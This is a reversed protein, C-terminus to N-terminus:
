SVDLRRRLVATAEAPDEAEHIASCVAVRTFGAEIVQRLNDGCIGGIAFSPLTIDEAVERLLEVGPHREFSKTHSAFVPGVGIYNVGALVARRAQDLSHTSLGIIRDPGLIRRADQVNLDDQGLHVGHADALLALDPRDNVILLKGVSETLQRAVRARELLDKEPCNKDRLQIVDAGSKLLQDIRGAFEDQSSDADTLVYLRANALRERSDVTIAVARDFTYTRYRIAEFQGGLNPDLIKTYEELCRISQQVRKFSAAAVSFTDDRRRERDTVVTTGLDSTTDRAESLHSRPIREMVVVVDHRLQKCMETLHRDEIVFRLFDEVM